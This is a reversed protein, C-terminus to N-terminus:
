RIGVLRRAAYDSSISRKPVPIPKPQVDFPIGVLSKPKLAGEPNGPLPATREAGFVQMIRQIKPDIAIKGGPRQPGVSDFSGVTVISTHRDHFQYAEYGDMRLAKCLKEAKAWAEALKNNEADFRHALAKQIKRQDIEVRGRFEAVQVTYKGPCDLLSHEVGKNLELVFKDVGQPVFYEKPLTPNTVLFANGMPGKKRAEDNAFRTLLRWGALNRATPHSADIKLCKPTEHKIRKLMAQAAPDDVAPFDGVLVAIETSEDGKRYKLPLPDGFQDIGRGANGLAHNFTKQYVYAPLKYRQRLELVLEHAQQHAKPGSFSCAMIMWPGNEQALLYDKEPNAEVRRATLIDWPAALAGSSAVATALCWLVAAVLRRKGTM